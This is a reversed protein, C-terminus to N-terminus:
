ARRMERRREEVMAAKEAKIVQLLKRADVPLYSQDSRGYNDTTNLAHGMYLKRRGEPLGAAELLHEYARRADNRQVKFLALEARYQKWGMMRRTPTVILPVTRDRGERKTGHIAIGHTVLNWAGDIEKIGMGTFCMTLWTASAKASLGQAIELVRRVTPATRKKRRRKEKYPVVAKAALWVEHRRTLRDRAYAMVAARTRNFTVVHGALTPRLQLLAEPLDGVTAQRPLFPALKSWAHRRQRQTDDNEATEGWMEWDAQLPAQSKIDPLQDLKGTRYMTLLDLPRTEGDRVALLYARYRRDTHSRQYLETLMANVADRERVKTTGSARRIRGIGNFIRDILLTGRGNSARHPTM